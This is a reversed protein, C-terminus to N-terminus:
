LFHNRFIAFIFMKYHFQLWKNSIFIQVSQGINILDHEAVHTDGRCIEGKYSLAKKCWQM